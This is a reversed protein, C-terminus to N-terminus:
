GVYRALFFFVATLQRARNGRVVSDVSFTVPLRPHLLLKFFFEPLVSDRTCGAPSKSTAIARALGAAATGNKNEGPNYEGHM